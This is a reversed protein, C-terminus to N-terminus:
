KNIKKFIYFKKGKKNKNLIIDSNRITIIEPSREEKKKILM